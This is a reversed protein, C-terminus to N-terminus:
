DELKEYKILDYFKKLTKHNRQDQSESFNCLSKIFKERIEESDILKSIYYAVEKYNGCEAIFGNICHRIQNKMGPSSTIVIPKKLCKAEFVSNSFGERYSCQVFIDAKRIYAYPNEKRGCLIFNNEIGYKKIEKLLNRREEGEGLIYWKFEYGMDVLLKCAEIAIDYGKVKRLTGVSIIKIGSFDIDFDIEINSKLLIENVDIINPLIVVKNKFNVFSQNFNDKMEESLVCIYDIKKYYNYDFGSDSEMLKYDTRLFSIYKKAIVKDVIYYTPTSELFAIVSDYQNQQKPIYKNLIKWNKMQCYYYSEKKMKKEIFNKVRIFILPWKKIIYIYKLTTKLPSLAIETNIDIDLINVWKPVKTKYYADNKSFYLLDIQYTNYDIHKLLSILAKEAGGCGLSDIVILLKKM